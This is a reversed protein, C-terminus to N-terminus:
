AAEELKSHLEQFSRVLLPIIGAYNVKKFGSGGPDDHVLHPQIRELDQALFGQDQTEGGKWKWLVPHLALVKETAEEVPEIEKKLREDSFLSALVSALGGFMGGLGGGAQQQQQNHTETQGGTNVTSGTFGQNSGSTTQNQSTDTTESTQGTTASTRPITSLFQGAQGMGELSMQRQLLPISQQLQTIGAIRQSQNGIDATAAVPSTSLGRAALLQQVAQNQLESNRNIRETQQAQYGKLDPNALNSYQGILQEQLAQAAPTSYGGTTQSATTGTSTGHQLMQMLQGMLQTSNTSSAQFGSSTTNSDGSVNSATPFAGAAGGLAPLLWNMWNNNNSNQLYPFQVQAM